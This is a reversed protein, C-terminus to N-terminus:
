VMPPSGKDVRLSVLLLIRVKKWNVPQAVYRGGPSKYGSYDGAGMACMELRLFIFGTPARQLTGRCKSDESLAEGNCGPILSILASFRTLRTFGTKIRNQM